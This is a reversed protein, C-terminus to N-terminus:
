GWVIGTTMCSLCSEPTANTTTGYGLVARYFGNPVRGTGNCVPCCHPTLSKSVIPQDLNGDQETLNENQKKM